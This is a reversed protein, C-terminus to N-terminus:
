IQIKLIEIQEELHEIYRLVYGSVDDDLLTLYQKILTVKEEKYRM